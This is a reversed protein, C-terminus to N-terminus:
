KEEDKGERSVEEKCYQFWYYERGNVERLSEPAIREDREKEDWCLAELSQGTLLATERKEGERQAESLQLRAEAM